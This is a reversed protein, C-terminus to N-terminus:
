AWTVFVTSVEPDGEYTIDDVSSTDISVRLYNQVDRRTAELDLNNRVTLTVTMTVTVERDAESDEYEDPDDCECDSDWELPLFGFAELFAATGEHCNNKGFRSSVHESIATERLRTMLDAFEDDTTPSPIRAIHEAYTERRYTDVTLSADTLALYILATRKAVAWRRAPDSIRALRETLNRPM